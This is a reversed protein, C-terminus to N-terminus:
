GKRSYIEHHDELAAVRQELETSERVRTLSALVSALDAGQAPTLGGTALASLVAGVAEGLDAPDNGLSLPAPADVPRLAPLCRDLLIKAATTDGAKASVVLAEIISPLDKEISDRLKGVKTKTGPKRGAPNGSEGPKFKPM